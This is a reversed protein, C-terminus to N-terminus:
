CSVLGPAFRLDATKQRFSILWNVIKETNM